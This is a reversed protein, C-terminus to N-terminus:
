SLAQYVVKYIGSNGRLKCNLKQINAYFDANDICKAHDRMFKLDKLNNIDSKM